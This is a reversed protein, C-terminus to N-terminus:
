ICNYFNCCLFKPFFVFCNYYALMYLNQNILCLCSPATMLKVTRFYGTVLGRIGTPCSMGAVAMLSDCAMFSLHNWRHFHKCLVHDRYLSAVNILKVAAMSSQHTVVHFSTHCLICGSNHLFISTTRRWILPINKRPIDNKLVHKSHM